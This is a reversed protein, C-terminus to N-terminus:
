VKLDARECAWLNRHLAKKRDEAKVGLRVHNGTVNVVTVSIDKGIIVSENMRRTLILM